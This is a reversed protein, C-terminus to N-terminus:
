HWNDWVRRLAELSAIREPHPTKPGPPRPQWLAIPLLADILQKQLPFFRGTPGSVWLETSTADLARMIVQEPREAKRVQHLLLTGFMAEWQSLAEVQEPQLSPLPSQSLSRYREAASSSGQMWVHFLGAILPLLRAQAQALCPVWAVAVNQIDRELRFDAMRALFMTPLIGEPVQSTTQRQLTEQGDLLAYWASREPNWEIILFWAPSRALPTESEADRGPSTGQLGCAAWGEPPPALEFPLPDPHNIPWFPLFRVRELATFAAGILVPDAVLTDYVYLVQSIDPATVLQRMKWEPLVYRNSM